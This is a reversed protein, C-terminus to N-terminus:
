NIRFLLPASALAHASLTVYRPAAGYWRKALKEREINQRDNNDHEAVKEKRTLNERGFIGSVRLGAHSATGISCFCGIWRKKRLLRASRWIFGQGILCPTSSTFRSGTSYFIWRRRFPGIATMFRRHSVPTAAADGSRMKTAGIAPQISSIPGDALRATGGVM